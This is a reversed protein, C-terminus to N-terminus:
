SDGGAPDILLTILPARRGPRVVQIIGAKELQALVRYKVERSVGYRKLHDNSLVFTPSKTKWALYALLVLLMASPSNMAKAVKAAWKLPVQAFDDAKDRTKRAPPDVDVDVVKSHSRVVRFKDLRSM